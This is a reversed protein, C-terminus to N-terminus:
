CNMFVQFSEDSISSLKNGRLNLYSLKDLNMFARRELKEIKNDNLRLKRLAKFM